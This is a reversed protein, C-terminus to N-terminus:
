CSVVEKQSVICLPVFIDTHPHTNIINVQYVYKLLQPQLSAPFWTLFKSTQKSLSCFSIQSCTSGNGRMTVEVHPFLGGRSSTQVRGKRQVLCLVGEVRWFGGGFLQRELYLSGLAQFYPLETWFGKWVMACKIRTCNM